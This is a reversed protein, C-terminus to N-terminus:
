TMDLDGEYADIQDKAIAVCHMDISVLKGNPRAFARVGGTGCWGPRKRLHNITNGISQM